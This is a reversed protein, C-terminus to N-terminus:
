RETCRHYGAKRSHLLEIVDKSVNRDYRAINTDHVYTNTRVAGFDPPLYREMGGGVQPDFCGLPGVSAPLVARSGRFILIVGSLRGHEGSRNVHALYEFLTNTHLVM